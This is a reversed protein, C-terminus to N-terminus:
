QGAERGADGRSMRHDGGTRLGRAVQLMEGSRLLTAAEAWTRRSLAQLGPAATLSGEIDVSGDARRLIPDDGAIRDFIAAVDQRDYVGALVCGIALPLQQARAIARLDVRAESRGLESLAYRGDALVFLGLGARQLWSRRTLSLDTPLADTLQIRM